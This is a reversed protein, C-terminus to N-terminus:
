GRRERLFHFYEEPVDEFDILFMEWLNQLATNSPFSKVTLFSGEIM